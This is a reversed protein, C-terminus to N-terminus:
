GAIAMPEQTSLITRGVPNSGTAGLNPIANWLLKIRKGIIPLAHFVVSIGLIKAIADSNTIPLM